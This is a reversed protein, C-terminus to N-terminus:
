RRRVRLLFAACRPKQRHNDGSPNSKYYPSPSRQPHRKWYWTTVAFPGHAFPRASNATTSSDHPASTTSRSSHQQRQQQGENSVRCRITTKTRAPPRKRSCSCKFLTNHCADCLQEMAMGATKGMKQRDKDEFNDIEMDRIEGNVDDLDNASAM